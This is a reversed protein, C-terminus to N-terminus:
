FKLKVGLTFTSLPAYLRRGTNGSESTRPNFGERASTLWLNDGSVYINVLDLGTKDLFKSPLTYGVLINNLALFDTKTLFRTSTSTGNVVANDSLRPVNTIDGPQQWRARIDSHYNNGGAGFRDSMLEGYQNDLAYGGIQYTFQTSLNWNKYKASLRFAGSVDPIGSKGVYKETANSYTKTITRQINPDTTTTALYQTLGINLEEGSDLVGNNNQDDYYQYWMPAGDSPDVGAWERIYFDFISSGVSYGYPANRTDLVEQEGTQPSIYMEKIENDILAGNVSLDLKFDDTNIVHGTFDFELGNNRLVGENITLTAVGTSITNTRTFFLNETDKIFYDISGDLWTGLSFELGAQYQIATEWTLDPNEFTNAPFAFGGSGNNTISFTDIGTYFGVGAEDGTKGYSAKLKLFNIFSDSMFDENSIIWAGGVSYFTEWKNFAFKSSGDRRASLTLYYTDDFDYNVQGFYSELTRASRGGTSPGPQVIYQNLEDIDPNVVTTKFTSHFNTEFKNGEHAVLAELSHNGFDRRYRLLQLFNLTLRETNTQTINGGDNRATGYFPNGVSKFISNSYQAGFTTEFTLDDTFKIKGTFSGNMEHRDTGVFDLTATGIPNLLNANTRSRTPITPNPSSPGVSASGYDYQFGGFIPDPVLQYNQDRLFVPFFPQMKDAFEFVNESGATQGNNQTQSYAYGINAGLTLWEKVNSNVNIRTTYRKFGTNKAYGDDDLFGFSVFYRSDANGGAMRLNAETRYAADFAADEYRLPTYRRTVGDRVARTVPDILEGGDAVNWMNYAPDIMGPTFLTNNAFAVPDAVGTVQGRGLLGEWVFAISEEPSTIVDYRPILQANVGTRVDLEVYSETSSGGKTTILVVGNAGRSGYIATATADKLITTSKIDAPNIANLSGTYPVGDIVYLPARNGNISGFGRIRVTSTTGPQGSTNIVTVGAAEGALSQSVNSFNKTEIDENNVVKATGAYAKKTTTGYGIVVVEELANDLELAVDYTNSAGITVEATKMGVYSIELVDGTNVGISYKGDFDTQAGRSTGKVIVSAGPLPLGDDATTVTGTVTKEQAFSFQMVFAMFLTLLWTLKLKM